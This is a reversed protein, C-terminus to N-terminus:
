SPERAHTGVIIKLFLEGSGGARPEDGTCGAEDAAMEDLRQEREILGHHAQVVEGGAVPVVQLRHLGCQRGCLPSAEFEDLAVNAIGGGAGGGALACRDHQM